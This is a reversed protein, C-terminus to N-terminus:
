SLSAKYLRLAVDYADELFPMGNFSEAVVAEKGSKIRRLAESYYERPILRERDESYKELALLFDENEM